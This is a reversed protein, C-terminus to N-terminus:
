PQEGKGYRPPQGLRALLDNVERKLELARMERNVMVQQWRQLESLQESIRRENRKSDDIDQLAGHVRSIDRHLDREAEGTWRVWIRRGRATIIEMELDFPSGDRACAYVRQHATERWEPAVFQLAEELAPSRGPPLDHIGCVEDTWTLVQQPLDLAWGGLRATRGAIRFLAERKQLREEAIRRQTIDTVVAIHGGSAGDAGPDPVLSVISHMLEGAATYASVEYSVREGALARDIHPQARAMRQPGFVELQTRGLVDDVKRGFYNAFALNVFLYRGERSVRSVPGPLSDTILTLQRERERILQHARYEQTVDKFVLVVGRIADGGHRIPAATNDIQYERGDHSLLTTHSALGVVEGHALVRQVPDRVPKRTEANVIRFVEQLPRGEAESFRRGTLREATANMRIVRGEADTAIVGDGISQLTVALNNESDRLRQVALKRETIDVSLIFVGEPAPQMSLEFWASEGDGYDFANDMQIPERTAVCRQLAAFMETREIGPYVDTILRGILETKAKRGHRAAADNAYVYRLDPTLIQCGEIMNELTRYYREAADRVEAEAKKRELIEGRLEATRDLVKQELTRNLVTLDERLRRTTRHLQFRHCAHDISHPLQTLYRDRKVIYDSAGLRLLAVATSEDGHGTIVIFPLEFEQRQMEHFFDMVGMDPVRLDSMVADFGPGDKLLALADTCREVVHLRLHPAHAAFHARAMEADAAYPEVYLILRARQPGAAEDLSRKQVREMLDRLLSPLRHLYDGAKTVYDDAGALLARAVATEDGRGTLMVIPLRHGAARLRSLVEIGDVDPLHNDLLLLDFGGAELREQCGAGRDLVELQLDPAAKKFHAQTLEADFENDEAYLLRIPTVPITAPV